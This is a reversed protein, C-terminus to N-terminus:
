PSLKPNRRMVAQLGEWTVGPIVGYKDFLTSMRMSFAEFQDTRRLEDLKAREGFLIICGNLDGGHATLGLVETREFAKGELKKLYPLGEGMLWGFAKDEMGARPNDWGIFLIATAM